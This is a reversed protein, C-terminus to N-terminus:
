VNSCMVVDDIAERFRKAEIAEREIYEVVARRDPEPDGGPVGLAYGRDDGL